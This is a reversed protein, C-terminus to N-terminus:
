NLKENALKLGLAIFVSGLLRNLFGNITPSARLKSSTSTSLVVLLVNTLLGIMNVTIGLLLLTPFLHPDDANIFQPLFALFFIAVKPNLVDSLYGQFFITRFRLGKNAVGNAQVPLSTSRITQIGIYILYVAGLWKVVTFAFSSTALVASLGLVAALLHTYAGANIGLSAALGARKGQAISRGLVYIMDPGPTICLLISGGVFILYTSLDM